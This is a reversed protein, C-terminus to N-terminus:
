YVRINLQFNCCCFVDNHTKFRICFFNLHFFNSNFGSGDDWFRIRPDPDADFHYPDSVSCHVTGHTTPTHPHPM